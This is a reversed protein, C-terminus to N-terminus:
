THDTGTKRCGCAGCSVCSGGCCCSSNGNKKGRYLSYLIGAVIAALLAAVWITGSNGVLWSM